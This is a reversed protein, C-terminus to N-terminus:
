MRCPQYATLARMRMVVHPLSSAHELPMGVRCFTKGGDSEHLPTYHFVTGVRADSMARIMRTRSSSDPLILYYLHGNHEAGAPVTPRTVLGKKEVDAFAEHYREWIGRRKKTIEEEIQLQTWLMAASVESTLFSSGLSKWQYRELNGELFQRRDTGKEWAVACIDTFEPSNVALLGGEGCQINKTGHFSFASMAGYTGVPKGHFKSGVAQAADEIVILGHRDAISCITDMAASIGAYHIPIIGRTKDTIAEELRNEDINLTDPRIDCLVPTAGRLAVCQATSVFTFDPVLVEDGPGFGAVVAAMDLALTCSSTLFASDCSLKQIFWDHCQKTYYGDGQLTRMALAKAIEDLENGSIYARNFPIM